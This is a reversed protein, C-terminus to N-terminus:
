RSGPPMRNSIAVSGGPKATSSAGSSRPELSWNGGQSSGARVSIVAASGGRRRGAAACGTWRHLIEPEYVREDRAARRPQEQQVAGSAVLFVEDREAPHQESARRKQNDASFHDLVTHRAEEPPKGFAHEVEVVQFRAGLFQGPEDFIGPEM